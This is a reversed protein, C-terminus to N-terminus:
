IKRWHASLDKGTIFAEKGTIRSIDQFEHCLETKERHDGNTKQVSQKFTPNPPQKKKEECIRDWIPNQIKNECVEPLVVAKTVHWEKVVAFKGKDM